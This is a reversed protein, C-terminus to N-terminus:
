VWSVALKTNANRSSQRFEYSAQRKLTFLFKVERRFYTGTISYLFFNICYNMYFITRSIYLIGQWYEIDGLSVSDTQSIYKNYIFNRCWITFYPVNFAIFFFSVALLILTFELKIISEETRIINASKVSQINNTKVTYHQQRKNTYVLKRVILINLITIILFPVLTITVAFASDLVFSPFDYRKNSTCYQTGDASYYVGSLVPKYLVLICSLLCIVAIIRRTSSKTCIHRRRLPHCVGIYREVTFAVVLWSSLFRSVYSLYMLVQCFGNYELFAMKTEPYIYVIGRRLWEVTVYFILTSLDSASLAALYASACMGRMNKSMFVNLSLSNGLIGIILIVPTLYVYFLRGDRYTVPDSPKQFNDCTSNQGNKNLMNFLLDYIDGSSCEKQTVNDTTFSSSLAEIDQQSLGNEAM